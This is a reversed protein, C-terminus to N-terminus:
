SFISAEEGELRNRFPSNSSASGENTRWIYFAGYSYSMGPHKLNIGDLVTSLLDNNAVQHGLVSKRVNCEM